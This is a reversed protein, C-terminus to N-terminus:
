LNVPATQGLLIGRWQHIAERPFSRHPMLNVLWTCSQAKRTMRCTGSKVLLPVQAYNGLHDVQFRLGLSRLRRLPRFRGSAARYM